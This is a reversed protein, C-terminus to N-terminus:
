ALVELPILNAEIQPRPVRRALGSAIVRLNTMEASKRWIYSLAMRIDFLQGLDLRCLEAYLLNELREQLQRASLQEAPAGIKRFYLTRAFKKWFDSTDGSALLERVAHPSLHRGGELIYRYKEDSQVGSEVVLLAYVLNLIDAETGLAERVLRANEDDRPRLLEQAHGFYFSDLAHELLALKGTREYEPFVEALPKYYRTGTSLLYDLVGRLTERKLLEHYFESSYLISPYLSRTIEEAPVAAHVGRVITKLNFVEFRELVLTILEKPDEPAIRVLRTFARQGHHVVAQEILEYGSFEVSCREIEPAYDTEALASQLEGLERLELLEQFQQPKLLKALMVRVRTNLYEYSM